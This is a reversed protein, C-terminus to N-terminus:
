ARRIYCPPLTHPINKILSTSRQWSFNLLGSVSGCFFKGAWPSGSPWWDLAVLNGRTVSGLLEGHPQRSRCPWTVGQCLCLRPLSGLSPPQILVRFCQSPQLGCSNLCSGRWASFDSWLSRFSCIEVFQLWSDDWHVFARKGSISPCVPGREWPGWRTGEQMLVCLREWNM